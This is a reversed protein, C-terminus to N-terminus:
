ANIIMGAPQKGAQFNEWMCEYGTEVAKMYDRADMLPSAKMRERLGAHLRRLRPIDRALLVAASVYEEESSACCEPLGVNQLLSYGFRAGHRRGALTIVPVGMYLADCTTGGGPYPYTDLAIDLDGYEPLYDFNAPRLEVRGAEIGADALREGAMRRAAANGFASSKLLLRATPLQMLIQGWVRIIEDTVKTFNNFSGFTIYGNREWPMAPCDPMTDAAAYCFHSHPLRVLKETFSADNQGVPDAYIDTLFYDVTPLGTTDFYGIGSIQVPAPKYALVPLGSNRTHGALDFLIDIEDAYIRAAIQENGLGAVNRWGDVMGAIQQSVADETGKQYCFVEFRQRDYDHFFAYSFFVVVHLRIDPSLYGIRLKEHRRDQVHTYQKVGAFFEGYRVHAALMAEPKIGTVYHLDFLYNAYEMARSQRDEAYSSAELYHELVQGAAGLEKYCQGLLNHLRVLVENTVPLREQLVSEARMAAKEWDGCLFDFRAALFAAYADRPFLESLQSIVPEAAKADGCELCAAALTELMEQDQPVRRLAQRAVAMVQRYDRKAILEWLRKRLFRLSYEPLDGQMQRQLKEQWAQRCAEEFERVYQPGDMLSSKELMARLNQHLVTLLEPDAALGVAREAYAAADAAALEGIGANMLLSYGFRAGHETGTLTVVPVGMYLAECTTVGGTYPFTDLAIDVEHYESLYDESFGRLEIRELPLGLGSLREAAAQRGEASGLIRSKLLLRAGAVRELIERWLRLVDDTVKSFNNFCGFTIFGKQLCPPMVPDPMPLLPMYCFHSHPLRLLRESFGSQQQLPACFVDTLFYDTQPLGTTNFYGIGCLQVPAPCYALVPLCNHQTHGSLDVLIDIADAHIQRATEEDSLGRVNRWATCQQRLVGSVADEINSAYAYVEFDDRSFYRLLPYLFFAVPHRRLDPSLYGIRLKRGSPLPELFHVYPVVKAFFKRYGAALKMMRKRGSGSLYNAAFLANSYERIRQAPDEELRSSELFAEVAQDARGLLTYASGTLSMAESLFHRCQRREAAPLGQIYGTLRQLLKLETLVADQKQWVYIEVMAAGIHRPELSRIGAIEDLAETYRTQQMLAAALVYRAETDKPEQELLQRMMAEAEVYQGCKMEASGQELIMRRKDRLEMVWLGM